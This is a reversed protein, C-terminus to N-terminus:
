SLDPLHAFSPIRAILGRKLADPRARYPMFGDESNALLKAGAVLDPGNEPALDGFVYSWTGHHLIAASGGRNCNGLCGVEKVMVGSGESARRTAEVLLAGARPTEDQSRDLRCSRCVIVVPAQGTGDDSQERAPHGPATPM